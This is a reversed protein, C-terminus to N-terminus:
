RCRGKKGGQHGPPFRQTISIPSTEQEGGSSCCPSPQLLPPPLHLSFISPAIPLHLLPPALHEQADSLSGPPAPVETWGANVPSHRHNSAAEAVERNRRTTAAGPQIRTSEQRPRDNSQPLDTHGM